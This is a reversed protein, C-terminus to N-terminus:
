TSPLTEVGKKKLCARLKAKRRTKDQVRQIRQGFHEDVGGFRRGTSDTFYNRIGVDGGSRGREAMNEVNPLESTVSLTLWWKGSRRNLTVSSNPRQGILAKRHYDSLRIPLFIPNGKDLTSVRLWYPFQGKEAETLELAAYDESVRLAVNANGQICVAKLTPINWEKWVPVHRGDKQQESLREYYALREVYDAYADTRRTRWSQAIGAAQQVAVRQWRASLESRFVLDANPDPAAQTCFYTVYAQCLGKYVEWVSDLKSLKGRNGECLAIHTIARTLTACKNKSSTRNAFRKNM